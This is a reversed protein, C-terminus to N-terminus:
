VCLQIWKSISIYHVFTLDSDSYVLGNDCFNLWLWFTCTWRRHVSTNSDCLIIGLPNSCENWDAGGGLYLLCPPFWNVPSEDGAHGTWCTRLDAWKQTLKPALRLLQLAPHNCCYAIGPPYPWSKYMIYRYGFSDLKANLEITKSLLGISLMIYRYGFSDLKANLEITNSLLGISVLEWWNWRPQLIGEAWLVADYSVQYM